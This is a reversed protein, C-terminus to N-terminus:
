GGRREVQEPRRRDFWEGLWVLLGCLGDLFWGAARALRGPEPPPDFIAWRSSDHAQRAEASLELTDTPPAHDDDTRRRAWHYHCHRCTLHVQDIETRRIAWRRRCKPCPEEHTVCVNASATVTM